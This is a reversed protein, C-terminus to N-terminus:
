PMRFPATRRRSYPARAAPARARPFARNRTPSPARAFHRPDRTLLIRCPTPVAVARARSPARAVARSHVAVARTCAFVRARPSPPRPDPRATPDRNASMRYPGRSMRVRSVARPRVPVPIERAYAIVRVRVGYRPARYVRLRPATAVTRMRHTMHSLANRIHAYM